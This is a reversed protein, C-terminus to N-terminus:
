PDTISFMRRNWELASRFPVSKVRVNQRIDTFQNSNASWKSKASLRPHVVPTFRTGSGTSNSM